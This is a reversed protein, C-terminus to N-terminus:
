SSNRTIQLKVTAPSGHETEFYAVMFELVGQSPQIALCLRFFEKSLSHPVELTRYSHISYKGSCKGFFYAM